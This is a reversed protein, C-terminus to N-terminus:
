SKKFDLDNEEITKNLTITVFQRGAYDHEDFKEYIVDAHLAFSFLFLIFSIWVKM